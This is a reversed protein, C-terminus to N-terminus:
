RVYITTPGTGQDELLQFTQKGAIYKSVESDPDDLDGWFRCRALCLEMCAPMAGRDIRNKCFTCKETTNAIHSPADGDGFAFDAQFSPEGEVFIRANYPCADICSRCGICKENDIVVIGTEMDKWTAEAECAEVCLPRGCHQCAAPLFGFALDDPYSGSAVDLLGGSGQAIDSDAAVDTIGGVALLAADPDKGTTIVRNYWVGDPLNNNSKCAIACARCGICKSVDVVMAYRM